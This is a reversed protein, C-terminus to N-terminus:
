EKFLVSEFIPVEVGAVNEYRKKVHAVSAFEVEPKGVLLPCFELAKEWIADFASKLKQIDMLVLNVEFQLMAKKLQLTPLYRQFQLLKIQQSRLENKTLKM